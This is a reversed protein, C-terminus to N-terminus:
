RKSKKYFSFCNRGLNKAVYMARDAHRLLTDPRVGDAPSLVIGISATIHINKEQNSLAKEM